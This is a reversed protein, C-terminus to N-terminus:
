TPAGITNPSPLERSGIANEAITSPVPLRMFAAAQAASESGPWYDSHGYWGKAGSMEARSRWADSPDGHRGVAVPFFGDGGSTQGIPFAFELVNDGRSYLVSVGNAFDIGGRLSGNRQCRDTPVAAAMLTVRDVIVNINPWEDALHDILNAILRCGLSHGVIHLAIPAGGPGFTGRLLYLIRDAAQKAVGIKSGYVAAGVVANPEDGPWQIGFVPWPLPSRGTVAELGAIFTNFSSIAADRSNNYGHVLLLATGKGDLWDSDAPYYPDVVGGGANRGPERVSIQNLATPM